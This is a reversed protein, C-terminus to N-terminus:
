KGMQIPLDNVRILRTSIKGIRKDLRERCAFLILEYSPRTALGGPARPGPGVPTVRRRMSPLRRIVGEVRARRAVASLSAGIRRRAVSMFRKLSSM